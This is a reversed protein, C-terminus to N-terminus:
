NQKQFDIGNCIGNQCILPLGMRVLGGLMVEKRWNGNRQRRRIGNRGCMENDGGVSWEMREM